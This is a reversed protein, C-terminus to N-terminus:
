EKLAKVLSAVAILGAVGAGVYFMPKVGDVWSPAAKPVTDLAGPLKAGTKAQLDSAWQARKARHQELQAITPDTFFPTNDLTTKYFIRWATLDNTFSGTFTADVKGTSLAAFMADNLSEWNANEADLAQRVQEGSRPLLDGFAAVGAVAHAAGTWADLGM